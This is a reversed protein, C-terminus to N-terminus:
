LESLGLLNLLSIAGRNGTGGRASGRDVITGDMIRPKRNRPVDLAAVLRTLKVEGENDGKFCASVLAPKAGPEPRWGTTASGKDSGRRRRLIKNPEVSTETSDKGTGQREALKFDTRTRAAIHEVNVDGGTIQEAKTRVSLDCRGGTM